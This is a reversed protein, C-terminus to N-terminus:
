FSRDEEGEAAVGVRLRLDPAAVAGVPGPLRAIAPDQGVVEVEAPGALAM